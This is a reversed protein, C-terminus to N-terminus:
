GKPASQSSDLNSGMLNTPCRMRFKIFGAFDNGGVIRAADLKSPAVTCLAGLLFLFEFTSQGPM